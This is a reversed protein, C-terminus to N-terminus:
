QSRKWREVQIHDETLSTFGKVVWIHALNMGEELDGDEKINVRATIKLLIFEQGEGDVAFSAEVYLRGKNEEIVFVRNFSAIEPPQPLWNDSTEWRLGTFVTGFFDILKEDEYPYLQNIYTVECLNPKVQGLENQQAWETFEKFGSLCQPLYTSFRPYKEGEKQCWNFVYRDPQLQLM